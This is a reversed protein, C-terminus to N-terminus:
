TTDGQLMMAADNMAVVQPRMAVEPSSGMRVSLLRSCCIARRPTRAQKQQEQHICM